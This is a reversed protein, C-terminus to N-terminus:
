KEIKRNKIMRNRNRVSVRLIDRGARVDIRSRLYANTADLARQKRTGALPARNLNHGEMEM